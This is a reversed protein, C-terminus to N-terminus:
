DELVLKILRVIKDQQKPDSTGQYKQDLIGAAVGRVLENDKIQNFLKVIHHSVPIKDFDEKVKELEDCGTRRGIRIWHNYAVKELPDDLRRIKYEKRFVDITGMLELFSIAHHNYYGRDLRDMNSAHYAKMTRSNKAIGAAWENLYNRLSISGKSLYLEYQAQTKAVGTIDGIIPLLAKTENRDLNFIEDLRADSKMLIVLKPEKLRVESEFAYNNGHVSRTVIENLTVLGTLRKKTKSSSSNASNAMKVEKEKIEWPEKDLVDYVQMDMRTFFERVKEVEAKRRPVLYVISNEGLGLGKTKELATLRNILGIKTHSLIIRNQCYVWQASLARPNYQLISRLGMENGYYFSQQSDIVYVNNIDLDNKSLKAFLRATITRHFWDDSGYFSEKKAYTLYSKALRENILGAKALKSVRHLVDTTYFKYNNEPYNTNLYQIAMEMNSKLVINKNNLEDASKPLGRGAKILYRGDGNSILKDLKTELIPYLDENYKCLHNEYFEKLLKTINKVTHEQLSLSERSPTVAITHPLAQIVFHLRFSPYSKRSMMNLNREVSDYYSGYAENRPIPYIVNGYRLNIQALDAIDESVIIFNHTSDNLGIGAIKEDNLLVNMEGNRAVELVYKKFKLADPYNKINIAVCLGSQECPFSVIPTIGPKGQVEGSSKSMSYITKTGGHSSTVQFHDTYAFPAKCGLGFGGTQTGDNKKTSSGYVGYIPGIDDSSIGVGQDTVEIKEDTVTVIVPTNTKGAAIHADWANCLVERVVALIQNTYLSSSLIHFFEANNSIGFDITKKGGIVAHTVLDSNHTVQM